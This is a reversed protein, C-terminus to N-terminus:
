GTMRDSGTAAETGGRREVTSDKCHKRPTDHIAPAVSVLTSSDGHASEFALDRDDGAGGSTSPRECAM